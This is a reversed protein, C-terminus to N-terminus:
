AMKRAGLNGSDDALCILIEPVRTRKGFHAHEGADHLLAAGVVHDLPKNHGDVVQVAVVHNGDSFQRPLRKGPVTGWSVFTNSIQQDVLFVEEGVKQIHKGRLV